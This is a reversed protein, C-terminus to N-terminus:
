QTARLNNLILQFTLHWFAGNTYPNDHTPWNTWYTTNMPIRHYWEIVQVDPLEELWIDMAETWYGELAAVDDIGAASVADTLENWRPDSWFYPNAQHGEGAEAADTGYYLNMTFYPDRVSGGHGRLGCSAEGAQQRSWADPPNAYTSKIGHNDLQRALIPGFDNFIGFGLIDCVVVDGDKEWYGDANKTYGATMMRADGKEPSYETTNHTTALKDEVADFYRQLPAYSPIPLSSPTGAGDYAVQILQERNIYYSVAWRVNKDNYPPESANFLLGIPWWDVYGYPPNFGSHTVIAPNRSLVERITTPRLDLAADANNAIVAQAMQTEGPNPVYVIQLVEPLAEVLGQDVAWWSDRRNIIKQEPSTQVVQWPGTTVPLGASIDFNTFELWDEGEFIHKPVIYLGIDFKYTMFYFFKPRPGLFSIKVTNADVEEITDIDRQVQSSRRLGSNDKLYQLTFAVDHAGFPTGDSWSIGERLNITLETFDDNYDWSEALWPYNTDNFASYYALPEFLLGPGNQHSTGPNYINWIDHDTYRGAAGVGGSGGWLLILQRNRPIGEDMMADDTMMADATAEVVVTEVVVREVPVEVEVTEVQTVVREVPVEVEVTEVQTVVREVEVTEVTTVVREVPVEVEVTEVVVEPAQTVVREVVVTQVQVETGGCAVIAATAAFAAAALMAILKTRM